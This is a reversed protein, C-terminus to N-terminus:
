RPIFQAKMATFYNRGHRSISGCVQDVDGEPSSRISFSNGNVTSTVPWGSPTVPGSNCRGNRWFSIQRNNFYSRINTNSDDLEGAFQFNAQVVGFNFQSPAYGFDSVAFTSTVSAHRSPVNSQRLINLVDFGGAGSMDCRKLAPRGSETPDLYYNGSSRVGSQYLTYCSRSPNNITGPRDTPSVTPARTPAGSTPAASSPASTPSDTLELIRLREAHTLRDSSLNAIVVSQSQVTSLLQSTTAILQSVSANLATESLNLANELMTNKIGLETLTAVVDVGNVYVKDGVSSNVYVNGSLTKISPVNNTAHIHTAVAIASLSFLGLARTCTGCGVAM